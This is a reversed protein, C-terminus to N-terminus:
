VQADTFGEQEKMWEIYEDISNIKRTIGNAGVEYGPKWEYLFWWIAEMHDGFVYRALKDQVSVISNVYVNDFIAQAIDRPLSDIYADEKQKSEYMLRFLQEKNM